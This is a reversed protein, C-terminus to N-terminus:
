KKVEGTEMKFNMEKYGDQSQRKVTMEVEEGPGMQMLITSYENFTSINRGNINTIVDGQQIGARMAPSDM